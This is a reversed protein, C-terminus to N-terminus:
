THFAMHDNISKVSLTGISLLGNGRMIMSLLDGVTIVDSLDSEVLERRCLMVERLNQIALNNQLPNVKM